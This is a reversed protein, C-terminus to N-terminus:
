NSVDCGSEFIEEPKKEFWELKGQKRSQVLFYSSLAINFRLGFEKVGITLPIGDSKPDLTYAEYYSDTLVMTVREPEIGRGYDRVSFTDSDINVEIQSGFGRRFEDIANNLIEKFLTYGGDRPDSGDGIRGIYMGKRLRIHKYWGTTEIKQLM